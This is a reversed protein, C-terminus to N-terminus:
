ASYRKVKQWNLLKNRFVLLRFISYYYSAINILYFLPFLPIYQLIWYAKEVLAIITGFILVSGFISLLILAFFERHMFGLTLSVAFLVNDLLLFYLELNVKKNPLFLRHGLFNQWTGTNWRTVQRWYDPLDFPDQTIVRAKNEYVIRGLQNKHIQITLDFDETLTNNSFDLQDLIDARYLSACGPAVTILGMINQASKYIRHSLGYEYTRFASILGKRMSAVTGVILGPKSKLHKKIEDLFHPALRSDADFFLVYKYKSTIAFKKLLEQQGRAKGVNKYLALVHVGSKRAIAATKDTSGDSVVFIDDQRFECRLSQIAGGIVKEENYAPVIACFNKKAM